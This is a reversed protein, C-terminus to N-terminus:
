LEISGYLGAWLRNLYSLDSYSLCSRNKRKKGSQKDGQFSTRHASDSTAGENDSDSLEEEMASEDSYSEGESSTYASSHSLTDAEPSEMDEPENVRHSGRDFDKDKEDGPGGSAGSNGPETGSSADREM